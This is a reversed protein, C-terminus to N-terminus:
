RTGGGELSSGKLQFGAPAAEIVRTGYLAVLDTPGFDGGGPRKVWINDPGLVDGPTLNKTAVVSAFAFAITVAEEEAPAKSGGSAEFVEGSAEILERADDPTMSCAIDPGPRTAFDTFHRELIRAGLAVSAICASNSTSHDSLGLVADPFAEALATLGGLRILYNPTPYLNTTHLLAFPVGADRLIDVSPAVSEITNMGTSLIVPKGKAAIHEVLPYNNCEGSGIKFLPVDWGALRDAAERSFPTSFFVGGRNNVHEMLAHEDAESLTCREIVEYISVDANGPKISKAEESMEADPIHTQHKIFRVGADLAADAMEKAVAFSGEHNIGIEAIVVPRHGIGFSVGQVSFEPM